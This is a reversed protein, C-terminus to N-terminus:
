AIHLLMQFYTAIHLLIQCYIPFRLLIQFYTAVDPLIYLLIQCYITIHLLIQCHTAIDPLIYSYAAIDPLIYLTVLPFHILLGRKWFYILVGKYLAKGNPFCVLENVLLNCIYEKMTSTLNQSSEKQFHSSNEKFHHLKALKQALVINKIYLHLLISFPNRHNVKVRYQLYFNPYFAWRDCQM